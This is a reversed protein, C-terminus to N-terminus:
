SHAKYKRVISHVIDRGLPKWLCKIGEVSGGKHRFGALVEGENFYEGTVFYIDVKRKNNDNEWERILKTATFGDMEPMQVDMLIFDLPDNIHAKYTKVAEIGNCAVMVEVGDQELLLKHLYRNMSYDDVVLAKIKERIFSTRQNFSDALLNNDVPIYLVFSAGQNSKSYVTIDGNMRNCLQKCIWLGLGTGGHISRSGQSTQEFMGFIKPLEHEGIGCGTDTIQIKLFGKNNTSSNLIDENIQEGLLCTKYLSWNDGSTELNIHSLLSLDNRGKQTLRSLSQLNNKYRIEEEISLEDFECFGVAQISSSELHTQTEFNREQTKNVPVGDEGINDFLTLLNDKSQVWAIYINIRGEQHTFKVANSVLNMFIQLLRSPDVWLLKPVSEDIYARVNLSKEKFRESNITYVKKVTDVIDTDMYTMEMRDAKLKAADLVNSVLNLLIDGSMKASKLVQIYDKEKIVQLLYDIGGKLTNLPNRIEHSLMSIFTDKAEMAQVVEKTLIESKSYNEQALRWIDLEIIKQVVLLAVTVVSCFLGIPILMSVQRFQEESLTIEFIKLVRYTNFFYEIASLALNLLHIKLSATAFFTFFNYMVVGYIGVLPCNMAYNAIFNSAHMEM